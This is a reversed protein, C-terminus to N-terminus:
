HFRLVIENLVVEEAQMRAQQSLHWMEMTSSKDKPPNNDLYSNELIEMMRNANDEVERMKEALIGFRKLTRYRDKHNEKLYEMAKVAFRGLETIKIPEAPITLDPYMMGDIGKHYTLKVQAM